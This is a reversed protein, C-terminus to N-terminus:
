PKVAASGTPAAGPSHVPAGGSHQGTGANGNNDKELLLVVTSIPFRLQLRIEVPVKREDDTLWVYLHGGRRYLVNNFLFAEYKITKFAGAPTKVEERALAEVRAQVSKKGDSVPVQVFHGPEVRMTRLQYLAGIVDHTCSPVDIEHSDAIKNKLLDREQYVAKKRGADFRVKTERHRSGESADLHTNAACLAENLRSNYNDNVKYLKSVLGASQLNVDSRWGPDGEQRLSHWTLTADGAHILRWEITYHLVEQSPLAQNKQSKSPTVLLGLLLAAAVSKPLGRFMLDQTECFRFSPALAGGTRSM